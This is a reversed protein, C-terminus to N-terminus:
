YTTAQRGQARAFDWPLILGAGAALSGLLWQRRKADIEFSDM